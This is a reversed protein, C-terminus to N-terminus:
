PSASDERCATSAAPPERRAPSLFESFLDVGNWGEFHCLAGRGAPHQRGPPAGFLRRSRVQGM